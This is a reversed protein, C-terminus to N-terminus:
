KSGWLWPRMDQRMTPLKSHFRIAYEFVEGEPGEILIGVGSEKENTAGDVYLKWHPVEEQKGEHPGQVEEPLRATCKLRRANKMGSFLSKPLNDSKRFFPLNRDGSKSTFRSLAGLCWTLRQVKKYSTPPEMKMIAEIKEPNPEIRRKSIMFSLFKGSTVGFSCKEPNIRLRSSRLVELTERLNALHDEGRRSKVLM